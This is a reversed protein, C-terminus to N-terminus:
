RCYKPPYKNLLEYIADANGEIALKALKGCSSLPKESYYEATIEAAGSGLGMYIFKERAYEYKKGKESRDKAKYSKGLKRAIVEFGTPEVYGKDIYSDVAKIDGDCFSYVADELYRDFDGEWGAASVLEEMKEGYNEGKVMIDSCQVEAVSPSSALVAFLFSNRILKM